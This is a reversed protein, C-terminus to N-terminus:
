DQDLIGMEMMLLISLELSRSVSIRIRLQFWYRRYMVRYIICCVTDALDIGSASTSGVPLSIQATLADGLDPTYQYLQQDFTDKSIYGILAQSSADNVQIYGSKSIIPMSSIQPTAPGRRANAKATYHGNYINPMKAPIDAKSGRRM